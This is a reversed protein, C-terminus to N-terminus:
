KRAHLGDSFPVTALDGEFTGWAGKGVLTCSEYGHSVSPGEQFETMDGPALNRLDAEEGAISM